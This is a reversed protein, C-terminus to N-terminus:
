GTKMVKFTCGFCERLGMELDELSLSRPKRCKEKGDAYAVAVVKLEGDYSMPLGGISQLVPDFRFFRVQRGFDNLRGENKVQSLTKLAQDYEPGLSGLLVVSADEIVNSFAVAPLISINWKATVKEVKQQTKM